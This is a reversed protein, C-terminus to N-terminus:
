KDTDHKIEGKVNKAVYQAIYAAAREFWGENPNKKGKWRPSLWPEITYPLYPAIEDDIYIECVDPSPFRIQAANLAMNGTSGGPLYRTKPNPVLAVFENFAALCLKRFQADSM